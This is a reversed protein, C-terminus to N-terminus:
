ARLVGGGARAAAQQQQKSSAAAAQQMVDIVGIKHAPVAAQLRGGSVEHKLTLKAEKLLMTNM